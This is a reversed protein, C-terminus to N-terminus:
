THGSLGRPEGDHQGSLGKSVCSAAEARSLVQGTRWLYGM